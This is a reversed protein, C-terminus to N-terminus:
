GSVQIGRVSMGVAVSAGPLATALPFSQTKPPSAGDLGLAVVTAKSGDALLQVLPGLRFTARELMAPAAIPFVSTAAPPSVPEADVAAVSTSSEPVAEQTCGSVVNLSFKSPTVGGASGAPQVAIFSGSGGGGSQTVDFEPMGGGAKSVGGFEAKTSLGCPTLSLRSLEGLM